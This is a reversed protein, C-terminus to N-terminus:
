NNVHEYWDVGVIVENADEHSTARLLYQENQKLIWEYRGIDSGGVAYKGGTGAHSVDILTGTAGVTPTHTVVVTAATASNRDHNYATVATGVPDITPDEFLELLAGKTVIMHFIAHAWKTTDPTTVLLLAVADTDIAGKNYDAHFMNGAHIEHHEYEITKLTNTAEDLGMPRGNSDVITIKGRPLSNFHGTNDSM